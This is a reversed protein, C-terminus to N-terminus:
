PIQEQDATATKLALTGPAPAPKIDQLNTEALLKAVYDDASSVKYHDGRKVINRGRFAVTNGPSQTGTPRLLLHQQIEKFLKNAIREEGLFLLDDVYALVFCNHAETMYINSEEKGRHLRIQQLVESLHKKGHKQVAAYDM